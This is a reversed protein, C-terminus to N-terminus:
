RRRRFARLDASAPPNTGTLLPRGDLDTAPEDGTWCARRRRDVHSGDHNEPRVCVFTIHDHTRRAGCSPEGVQAAPLGLRQLEAEVQPWWFVPNHKGVWTIVLEALSRHRAIWLSVAAKTVGTRRAIEAAHVLHQRMAEDAGPPPTFTM